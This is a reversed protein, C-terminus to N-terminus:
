QRDNSQRRNPLMVGEALSRWLWELPGRRYRALWWQSWALMVVWGLLVFPVQELPGYRDFLGLGWGNFLATMLVTTGLYNSFAMKGAAEIRAGIRSALLRPTALVLGAAYALAMLLHEFGAGYRIVMSMARLPFGQPMLWSLLALAIAGGLGLGTLLTRWLAERSWAGSFFGSRYLAMGILILPLTEGMWEIAGKVPALPDDALKMRVHDIFGARAGAMEQAALELTQRALERDAAIDEASAEGALIRQEAAVAPLSAVTGNLSWLMLLALGIAALMAPRLRWLPLAILGALAYLFLIDGWWFLLYHLYGFLALWLLRRVQLLAGPRGGAESREFFLVMSAGFLLTFLARMKGEFLLFSAAFTWEGARSAPTLANPSVTEIGPGALGGINIALIGLVAIGRILDLSGIRGSGADQPPDTM